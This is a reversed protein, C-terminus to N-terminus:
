VLHTYLTSQHLLVFFMFYDYAEIIEGKSTHSIAYSLEDYLNDIRPKEISIQNTNQM